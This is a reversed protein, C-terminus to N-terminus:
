VASGPEAESSRRFSSALQAAVVVLSSGAGAESSYDALLEGDLVATNTLLRFTLEIGEVVLFPPGAAVAPTANAAARAAHAGAASFARSCAGDFRGVGESWPCPM